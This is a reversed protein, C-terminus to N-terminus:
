GRVVVRRWPQWRGLIWILDRRAFAVCGETARRPARWVHLFIASGAGSVTPSRNFDLVGVLDYLPDPRRLREASGPFPAQVAANYAAAQPDDCWVDRPGIPRTGPGRGPAALRDARFLVQELRWVGVPTVGDGEGAKVGVGGRGVACVMRRGDMRAGTRDM